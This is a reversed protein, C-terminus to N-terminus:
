YMRLSSLTGICGDSVVDSQVNVSFCLPWIFSNQLSDEFCSSKEENLEERRGLSPKWHSGREVLEESWKETKGSSTELGLSSM